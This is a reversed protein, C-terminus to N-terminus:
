NTKKDDLAESVKSYAEVGANIIEKKNENIVEKGKDLVEKSKKTFRNCHEDIKSEYKKFLKSIVKNYLFAAGQTNPMFLWILFIQKLFFYFPIFKMIFGAFLDIFTFIAYVAWYTLWQKDDDEEPTEIAKISWYTPLVIGVICTVYSGFNGVLCLVLSVGLVALIIKPDINGTKKQILTFQKQMQKSLDEQSISM